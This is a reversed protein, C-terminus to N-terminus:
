AVDAVLLRRADTLVPMGVADVYTFSRYPPGVKEVVGVIGPADEFSLDTRSSDLLELATASVGMAVEVLDALDAPTFLLRDDPIVRTSVGDVDVQTDYAPAVPPLGESVLLDNLDALTVRTRGAATGHVAAIVEANRQMLRIVRQSTRIAGARVGNGIQVDNWAVLNTLVTANTTDTWLVAPAVLQNAPVGFDAEGAFGNESITLRGDTLVDGIAQELRAQVERALIQGDNYIANALAEQRTGGTRAFQLQLREYEGMNLSSSLPILKVRRDSGTDRESVHIRGDYSRYRATRNTRTIEAWDVTNDNETREGAEALLRLDSPIPVERVFETLADPEVPADFFIAM